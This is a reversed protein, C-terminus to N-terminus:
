PTGQMYDMLFLITKHTSQKDVVVVALSAHLTICCVLLETCAYQMCAYMCVTCVANDMCTHNFKNINTIGLFCHYQYCQHLVYTLQKCEVAVANLATSRASKSPITRITM